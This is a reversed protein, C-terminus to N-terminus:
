RQDSRLDDAFLQFHELLNNRAKSPYGYEPTRGIAGRQVQKLFRLLGRARQCKLELHHLCPPRLIELACECAHAALPGTSEEDESVRHENQLPSPDRM